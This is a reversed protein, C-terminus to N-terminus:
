NGGVDEMGVNLKPPITGVVVGVGVGENGVGEELKLKLEIVGAGNGVAGVFGAAGPRDTKVDVPVSPMSVTKMSEATVTVTVGEHVNEGATGLEEGGGAKGGACNKVAGGETRGDLTGDDEGGATPEGNGEKTPALAWAGGEAMGDVVAAVGLRSGMSRLAGGAVGMGELVPKEKLEEGEGVGVGVGNGTL